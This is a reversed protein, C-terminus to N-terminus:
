VGEAPGRGQDDDESESEWQLQHLSAITYGRWQETARPHLGRKIRSVAYRGSASQVCPEDFKSKAKSGHSSAGCGGCCLMLADNGGEPAAIAAVQLQRHGRQRAADAIQCIRPRVATCPSRAAKQQQKVGCNTCSTHGQRTSWAHSNLATKSQVAEAKLKEAKAERKAAKRAERAERTEQTPQRKESRTARPWRAVARGTLTAIQVAQTWAEEAEAYEYKAWRTHGQLAQKALADARANGKALRREDLDEIGQWNQHAKVKQMGTLGPLARCQKAKRWLGGYMKREWVRTDSRHQLRRSEDVVGACDGVICVQAESRVATEWVGCHEAAQATQPWGAPVTGAASAIEEGTEDDIQVAAWSARRLEPIGPTTASGDVYVKGRCARFIPKEFDAASPQENSAQPKDDAPSLMIGGLCYIANDPGAAIAAETLGKHKERLDATAPCVWVRHHISDDAAQCLACLRSTEYGQDALRQQPWISGSAVARLSGKEKSSLHKGALARNVAATSAAGPIGQWGKARLRQGVQRELGRRVADEVLQRMLRPSTQRLDITAGRDDIWNWPGEHTWQLRQLTLRIADIPGRVESWRRVARAEGAEWSEM